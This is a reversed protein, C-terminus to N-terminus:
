ARVEPSAFPPVKIFGDRMTARFFHPTRRNKHDIDHLMYGLDREGALSTTDAHDIADIGTQWDAPLAEGPGPIREDPEVWAFHCEHERAGLYVRHFCQGARARREFCGLYKGANESADLLDFEARIVYHVDRLLTSAFQQRYKLKGTTPDVEDVAIGLRGHGLKMATEASRAPVKSDVGNRRISMFRIPALVHIETIIWKIQPKWFIGELIGRAASPTLCDYSVQEVKMEPRTFCATPGWVRLRIGKSM